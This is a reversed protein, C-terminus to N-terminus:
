AEGAPGADVERDALDPVDDVLSAAGPLLASFM